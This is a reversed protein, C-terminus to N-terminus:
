IGWQSPFKTVKHLTSPVDDMEHIWPRGLIMNYAMDINVVQFKTDKVVGEAFTTLIIEGKTVVSLNDFSSLTHMKPILKDKVQMENVVRLLINNASSGKESFLKTLYGQKLLHDVEGQLLRCDTMKHGHDNHFKCWFDPNRRNPNSRMEKPWRVKDKMSRLVAVFESTSVNFNYGGFKPKLGRNDDRTERTNQEKGFRSSSSSERDRSRHDYRSNDQKSRSDRGTPVMYPEYRNKGSIKETEVRRSSVREEKQSRTITDEEIRLKTNYINYVDNWTTTPFERLSEKLRRTAESSKENLNSTFAM